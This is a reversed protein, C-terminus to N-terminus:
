IQLCCVARKHSHDLKLKSVRLEIQEGTELDFTAYYTLMRHSCMGPAAYRHRSVYDKQICKNTIAAQVVIRPSRRDKIWHAVIVILSM